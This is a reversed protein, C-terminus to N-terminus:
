IYFKESKFIYKKEIGLYHYLFWDFEEKKDERKIVLIHAEGLQSSKSGRM